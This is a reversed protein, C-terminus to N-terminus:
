ARRWTNTSRRPPPSCRPTWNCAAAALRPWPWPAFTQVLPYLTRFLTRTDQYTISVPGSGAALAQAVEPVDALSEGGAARALYAKLTQPYLTVILERDTLCWTPGIPVSAAALDLDLAGARPIDLERLVPQRQGRRRTRCTRRPFANRIAAAVGDLAQQVGARDRVPVVLTLGTAILGGEGPSSYLCWVDGLSRALRPVDFGLAEPQLQKELDRVCRPISSM